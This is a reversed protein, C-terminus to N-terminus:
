VIFMINPKFPALTYWVQVQFGDIHSTIAHVGDGSTVVTYEMTLNALDSGMITTGVLPPQQFLTPNSGTSITAASNEPLNFNNVNGNLKGSIVLFVRGEDFTGGAGGGRDYYGTVNAQIGIVTADNPVDFGFLEGQLHYSSKLPFTASSATAYSGDNTTIRGPDSWNYGGPPTTLVDGLTPFRTIPNSDM